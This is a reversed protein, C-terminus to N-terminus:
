ARWPTGFAPSVSRFWRRLAAIGDREFRRNAPTRCGYGGPSPESFITTDGTRTRTEGDRSARCVTPITAGASSTALPSGRGRLAGDGKRRREPRMRAGHLQVRADRVVADFRVGHERKV